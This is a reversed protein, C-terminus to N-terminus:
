KKRRRKKKGTPKPIGEFLEGQKQESAAPLRLIPADQLGGMRKIPDVVAPICYGNLDDNIQTSNFRFVYWGAMTVDNNRQNDKAILKPIRHWTDGDTEVDLKGNRCFFRLILVITVTTSKCIINGSQLFKYVNSNQGCGIKLRVKTMFATSRLRRRLNRGLQPFSFWHKEQALVFDTPDNMIAVLVEGRKGSDQSDM